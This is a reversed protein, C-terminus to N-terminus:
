TPKDVFSNLVTLLTVSQELYNNAEFTLTKRTCIRRSIALFTSTLKDKLHQMYMRTSASGIISYHLHLRHYFIAKIQLYANLFIDLSHIYINHEFATMTIHM